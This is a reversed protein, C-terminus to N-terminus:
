KPSRLGRRIGSQFASHARDTGTLDLVIGDSESADSAPAIPTPEVGTAELPMEVMAAIERGIKRLRAVVGMETTELDSMRREVREVDLGRRDLEERVAEEAARSLDNTLREIEQRTEEVRAEAAERDVEAEARVQTAWAEAEFRVAGAAEESEALLEDAARRAEALMAQADILAERRLVSAAQVAEDHVTTVMTHMERLAAAVEVGARRFDDDDRVTEAVNRQFARVEDPDFGRWRRRFSKTEIERPDIPM